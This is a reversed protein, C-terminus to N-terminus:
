KRGDSVQQLIKRQEKESSRQMELFMFNSSQVMKLVAVKLVTKSIYHCPDKFSIQSNMCYCLSRYTVPLLPSIIEFYNKFTM